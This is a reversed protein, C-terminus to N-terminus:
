TKLMLAYAKKQGRISSALRAMGKKRLRDRLEKVLSRIAEDSKPQGDWVDRILRDFSIFQNPRRALREIMRFVLTNGLCCTGGRFTITKAAADIILHGFMAEADVPRERLLNERFDHNPTGPQEPELHEALDAVKQVMLACFQAVSRVMSRIQELDATNRMGSTEAHRITRKPDIGLTSGFAFRLGFSV